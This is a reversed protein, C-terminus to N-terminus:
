EYPRDGHYVLSGLSVRVYRVGRGWFGAPYCQNFCNDTTLWSVYVGIRVPEPKRHYGLDCPASSLTPCQEEEYLCYRLGSDISHLGPLTVFIDRSTIGKCHEDEIKASAPHAFRCLV